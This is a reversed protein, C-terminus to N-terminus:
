LFKSLLLQSALSLYESPAPSPLPKEIVLTEASISLLGWKDPLDSRTIEEESPTLLWLRQEAYHDCLHSLNPHRLSLKVDVFDTVLINNDEDRGILIAACKKNLNLAVVEIKKVFIPYGLLQPNEQRLLGLAHQTFVIRRKQENSESLVTKTVNCGRATSNKPLAVRYIHWTELLDKRRIISNYLDASLKDFTSKPTVRSIKELLEISEAHINAPIQEPTTVMAWEGTQLEVAFAAAGLYRWLSSIQIGEKEAKKKLWGSFSTSDSTWLEKNRVELLYSAEQRWNFNRRKSM